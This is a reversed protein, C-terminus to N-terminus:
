SITRVFVIIDIYPHDDSLFIIFLTRALNPCPQGRSQDWCSMQNEVFFFDKSICEKYLAAFLLKLTLFKLKSSSSKLCAGATGLGGSIAM